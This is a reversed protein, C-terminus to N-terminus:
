KNVPTCIEVLFGNPDSIYSTTQGWPEVKTDQVLKAGSEIAKVLCKKVDDTEFAIEFVPNSSNATGPNKNLDSMLKLSSFALSTDGTDLEGYDGAEHLFKIKFGFAKEYFNLTEPVSKVYLITYKFKM